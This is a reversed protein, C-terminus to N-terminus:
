PTVTSCLSGSVTIIAPQNDFQHGFIAGLAYSASAGGDRRHGCPGAGGLDAWRRQHRDDRGCGRPGAARRAAEHGLLARPVHQEGWSILFFSLVSQLIGPILLYSWRRASHPFALGTSLALITLLVSGVLICIAVLTVPPYDVVTVKTLSFSAGSLASLLVLLGYEDFRPNSRDTM